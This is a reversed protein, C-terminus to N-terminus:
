RGASLRPRGARRSRPTYQATPSASPCLIDVQFASKSQFRNRVFPIAHYGYGRCKTERHTELRKQYQNYKGTPAAGSAITRIIGKPYRGARQHELIQAVKLNLNLVKIYVNQIDISTLRTPGNIGLKNSFSLLPHPSDFTRAALDYKLRNAEVLIHPLHRAMNRPLPETQLLTAPYAENLAKGFLKVTSARSERVILGM